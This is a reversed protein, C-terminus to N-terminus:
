EAAEKLGKPLDPLPLDPVDIDPVPILEDMWRRCRAQARHHIFDGSDLDININHLLQLFTLLDDPDHNAM